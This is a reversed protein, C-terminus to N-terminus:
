WFIVSSDLSKLPGGNTILDQGEIKTDFLLVMYLRGLVSCKM